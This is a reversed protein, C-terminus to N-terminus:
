GTMVARRCPQVARQVSRNRRMAVLRMDVHVCGASTLLASGTTGIPPMARQGRGPTGLIACTSKVVAGLRGTRYRPRMSGPPSGTPPAPPSISMRGGGAPAQAGPGTKGTSRVMGGMPVVLDAGTLEKTRQIVEAPYIADVHAEDRWDRVATEHGALCFGNRDLTFPEPAMRANRITVPYPQYVGTNLEAGPAWFRRNIRSTPILYDIRTEVAEPARSVRRDILEM